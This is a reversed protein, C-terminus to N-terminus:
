LRGDHHQFQGVARCGSGSGAHLGSPAPGICHRILLASFGDLVLRACTTSAFPANYSAGHSGVPISCVAHTWSNAESSRESGIVARRPIM